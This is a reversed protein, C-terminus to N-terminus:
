GLNKSTGRLSTGFYQLAIVPMSFVAYTDIAMEVGADTTVTSDVERALVGRSYDQPQHERGREFAATLRSAPLRARVAAAWGASGGCRYTSSDQSEAEMGAVPRQVRRRPLGQFDTWWGPYRGVSDM